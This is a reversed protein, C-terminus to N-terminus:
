WRPDSLIQRCGQFTNWVPNQYAYSEEICQFVASNHYDAMFNHIGTQAQARYWHRYEHQQVWRPYVPEEWENRTDYYTIGDEGTYALIRHDGRWVNFNVWHEPPPDYPRDAHVVIASTVVFVIGLLLILLMALVLLIYKV